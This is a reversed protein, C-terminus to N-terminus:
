KRLSRGLRLFRKSNCYKDTIFRKQKYSLFSAGSKWLTVLWITMYNQKKARKANNANESNYKTQTNEQVTENTLIM